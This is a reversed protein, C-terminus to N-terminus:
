HEDPLDDLGALLSREHLTRPASKEGPCVPVSTERGHASDRRLCHSPGRRKSEPGSHSVSGTEAAWSAEAEKRSACTWAWARRECRPPLAEPLGTRQLSTHAFAPDRVRAAQRKPFCVTEWPLPVGRASALRFTTCRESCIVNTCM